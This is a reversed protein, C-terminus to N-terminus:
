INLFVFAAKIRIQNMNAYFGSAASIIDYSVDLQLAQKHVLKYFTGGGFAIKYYMQGSPNFEEEYPEPNNPYNYTTKYSTSNMNGLGMGVFLYPNVIDEPKLLGIMYDIGFDLQINSGGSRTRKYYSNDVTTENPMLSLSLSLRYATARGTVNGYSMSAIFGPNVQGNIEYLYYDGSTASMIVGAGLSLFNRYTNRTEGYVILMGESTPLKRIESIDKLYLEKIGIATNVIAKASDIAMVKGEIISGITLMFTYYSGKAISGVGQSCSDDTCTILLIASFYLVISKKM